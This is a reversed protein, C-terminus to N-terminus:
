TNRESSKEDISRPPPPHITGSFDYKSEMKRNQSTRLVYRSPEGSGTQRYIHDSSVEKERNIDLSYPILSSLKVALEICLM